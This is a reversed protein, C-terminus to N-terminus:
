RRLTFRGQDLASRYAADFGTDTLVGETDIRLGFVRKSGTFRCRGDAWSGHLPTTFSGSHSGWGAHFRATYHTGDDTRLVARLPGGHGNNTNGWTGTWRGAGPAAFPGTREAAANWDSEFSRCGALAPVLLLAALAPVLTRRPNSM